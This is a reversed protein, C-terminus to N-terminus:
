FPLDNETLTTGTMTNSFTVTYSPQSFVVGESQRWYENVIQHYRSRQIAEHAKMSESVEVAPLYKNVFRRIEEGVETLKESKALGRKRFVIGDPLHNVDLIAVTDAYITCPYEAELRMRQYQYQQRPNSVSRIEVNHGEVLEQICTGKFYSMLCERVAMVTTQIDLQQTNM